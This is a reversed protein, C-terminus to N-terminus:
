RGSPRSSRPRPRAPTSSRSRSWSTRGRRSCRPRWGETTGRRRTACGSTSTRRRAALALDVEHIVRITKDIDYTPETSELQELAPKFVEDAHAAQEQLAAQQAQWSSYWWLGGAGLPLSIAVVVAILCGLPAKKLLGSTPKDVSDSDTDM